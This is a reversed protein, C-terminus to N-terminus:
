GGLVAIQDGQTRITVSPNCTKCFIFQSPHYFIFQSRHYFIFQSPHYFVFQSPHYVLFQSPHYFFPFSFNSPPILSRFTSYKMRYSSLQASPYCPKLSCLFM